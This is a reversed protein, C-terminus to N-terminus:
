YRPRSHWAGTMPGYFETKGSARDIRVMFDYRGIQVHDYRYRTPWVYVAFLTAALFAVILLSHLRAWAVAKRLRGLERGERLSVFKKTTKDFLYKPVPKGDASYQPQWM